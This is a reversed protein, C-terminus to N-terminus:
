QTPPVSEVAEESKAGENGRVDVASVSYVYAHGPTVDSDRYAPTKVVQPNMKMEGHGAEHRYINYGALDAEGNANWVLDIFPKQGPGSFAAQLGTPTAPPFIDHAVVRVPPTDDGEVSEVAGAREILTVVTGRYDYTKEWEFGTDLLSSAPDESLPVEGAVSDKGTETDRRYIRYLYRLGPIDRSPRVANWSISIGQPTLQTSLNPPPPLTPAAPVQVQNSLGASRGYSNLVAVAYTLNTTPSHIEVDSSLQDTYNAQPSAPPKEAPRKWLKLRPSRATAVKQTVVEALPPECDHLPTGISRCIKTAGAHRFIQHDTTETPVSWSLHVAHGKRVARLDRVPRALELSPPEPIGPAGCGTLMTAAYFSVFFKLKGFHM